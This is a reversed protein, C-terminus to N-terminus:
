SFGSALTQERTRDLFRAWSYKEAGRYPPEAYVQEYLDALEDLLDLVARRDHVHLDFGEAM